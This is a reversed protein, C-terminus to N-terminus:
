APQLTRSRADVDRVEVVDNFDFGDKAQARSRPRKIFRLHVGEPDISIRAPTQLYAVLHHLTAISPERDGSELRAVVPQQWGLRRALAAQTLNHEKRYRLLWASVERALRTRDWEDRIEPDKLSEALVDRFPRYTPM